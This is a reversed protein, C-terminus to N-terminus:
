TTEPNQQLVTALDAVSVTVGHLTVTGNVVPVLPAGVRLQAYSGGVDLFVLVEDGVAPAVPGCSSSQPLRSTWTVATTGRLLTDVSFMVEHLETPTGDALVLPTVAVVDATAVLDSHAIEAAFRQAATLAVMSPQPLSTSDAVALLATARAQVVAEQGAPVPVHLEAPDLPDLQDEDDVTIQDPMPIVVPTPEPAAALEDHPRLASPDSADLPDAPHDCGAPALLLLYLVTRPIPARTM